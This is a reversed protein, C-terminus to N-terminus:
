PKAALITRVLESARKGDYQGAHREKLRAMIPGMANLGEALWERVLATLDADGLQQPLYRALLTREAVNKAM